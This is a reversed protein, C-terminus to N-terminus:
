WSAAKWISHGKPNRNLGGRHPCFIRDVTVTAPLRYLSHIKVGNYWKYPSLPLMTPQPVTSCAPHDRTRNGILDPNKLHGLGELWV